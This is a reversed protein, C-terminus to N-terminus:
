IVDLERPTPLGDNWTLMWLIRDQEGPIIISVAHDDSWLYFPQSLNRECWSELPGFYGFFLAERIALQNKNNAQIRLVNDPWEDFIEQWTRTMPRFTQGGSGCLNQAGYTGVPGQAHGARQWLQGVLQRALWRRLMYRLKWQWLAWGSVGSFMSVEIYFLVNTATEAYQTFSFGLGVSVVALWASVPWTWVPCDRGYWRRLWNRM